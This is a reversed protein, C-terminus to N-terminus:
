SSALYLPIFLALQAQICNLDAFKQIKVQKILIFFPTLLFGLTNTSNKVSEKVSSKVASCPCEDSSKASINSM